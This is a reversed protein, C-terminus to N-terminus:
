DNEKLIKRVLASVERGQTLTMMHSGGKVLYDYEVKRLPLTRDKNGHIHIINEDYTKRQWNIIMGVSRKMFRKDKAALMKKFTAKEKRRDPEVIPQMIKAGSKIVSKPIVAYIPVVRQFRYRHPLEQRTKASSIIITKEPHLFDTLETAIMGGLSVGILIFKESTDIQTSLRRAYEPLRERRKPIEFHIFRIEYNEGLDFNNFLREDAGQGPICYIITKKPTTKNQSIENQSFVISKCFLLFLTFLLKKNM